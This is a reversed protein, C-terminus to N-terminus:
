IIKEISILIRPRSCLTFNFTLFALGLLPMLNWRFFSHYNISCLSLFLIHGCLIRLPLLRNLSIFLNGVVVSKQIDIRARNKCIKIFSLSQQRQRIKLSRYLNLVNEMLSVAIFWEIKLVFIYFACSTYKYVWRIVILTQRSYIKHINYTCERARDNLVTHQSNKKNRRLLRICLYKWRMCLCSYISTWMDCLWKLHLLFPLFIAFM